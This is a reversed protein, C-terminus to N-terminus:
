CRWRSTEDPAPDYLDRCTPCTDSTDVRRSSGAFGTDGTLSSHQPLVQDIEIPKCFSAPCSSRDKRAVHRADRQFCEFRGLAARKATRTPMSALKRVAASKPTSAVGTCTSTST